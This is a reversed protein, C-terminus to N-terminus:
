TNKSGKLIKEKQKEKELENELKKMISIWKAFATHKGKNSGVNSKKM